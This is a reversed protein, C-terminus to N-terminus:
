VGVEVLGRMSEYEREVESWFMQFACEYSKLVKEDREVRVRYLRLREPFAPHYSAFDWFPLGSVLLSHTVQPVYEPPVQGGLQLYEWHTAQKPCKLELGGEWDGVIGDPSCGIPLSDHRLFGVPQILAGSAAEYAGVAEPELEIGRKMDASVFGNEECPRGTLRELALQVRLNRRCAPEGGSKLPKALMDAALSATLVGARAAFWEATRQECDIIRM